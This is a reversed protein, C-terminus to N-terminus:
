KDFIGTPFAGKVDLLEAWWAAMIILIFVVRITIDNVVLTLVNDKTYYIGDKQEFVRENLRVHHTGDSKKRM